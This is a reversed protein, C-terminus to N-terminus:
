VNKTPDNKWIDAWEFKGAPSKVPIQGPEKPGGKTGPGKKKKKTM